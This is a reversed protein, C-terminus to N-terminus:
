RVKLQIEWRDGKANVYEGLSIARGDGLQGAWAGFQHGGYCMAYPVMGPYLPGFGGLVDVVSAEEEPPPYADDLDFLGACAPSWAILAKELVPEGREAPLVQGAALADAWAASVDDEAPDTPSVFSYAANLVPRITNARDPDAPLVDTFSSAFALRSLGAAPAAAPTPATSSMRPRALASRRRLPSPPLPAAHLFLTSRSASARYTRALRM